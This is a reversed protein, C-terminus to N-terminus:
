IKKSFYSFMKKNLRNIIRNRISLFTNQKQEMRHEFQLLIKPVKFPKNLSLSNILYLRNLTRVRSLVVYIWNPTNYEWSNVILIDKSMGQLKHGTTAANSNVIIQKIRVNGIKLKLECENSILLAIASSYTEPTLNFVRPIYKPPNPWHEYQLSEVKDVSITWM